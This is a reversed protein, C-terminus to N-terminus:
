PLSNERERTSQDAKEIQDKKNNTAKTSDALQKGWIWRGKAGELHLRTYKNLPLTGLKFQAAWKGQYNLSVTSCM